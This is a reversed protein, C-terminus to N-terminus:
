VLSKIHKEGLWSIGVFIPKLVEMEVFSRDLFIIGNSINSFKTLCEGIDALHYLLSLAFDQIRNFHHDKLTLFMNEKTAIFEEFHNCCNWPKASYEQNIFNSLCKIAKLVFSENRIYIGILFCNSIKQKELSDHIQQCLDKLKRQFM